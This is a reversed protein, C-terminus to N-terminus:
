TPLPGTHFFPRRHPSRRDRTPSATPMSGAPPISPTTLGSPDTLPVPADQSSTERIPVLRNRYSPSQNHSVELPNHQLITDPQQHLLHGLSRRNGGTHRQHPPTPTLRH